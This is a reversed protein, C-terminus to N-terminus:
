HPAHCIGECHLHGAVSSVKIKESGRIGMEDALEVPIEIFPEPILQVNMPNNKTWYHYQETLRYTTCVM